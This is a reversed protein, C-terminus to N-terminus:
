SVCQAAAVAETGRGSIGSENPLCIPFYFFLNRGDIVRGKVGFLGVRSFLGTHPRRNHWEQKAFFESVVHHPWSSSQLRWWNVSPAATRYCLVSVDCGNVSYWVSYRLKRVIHHLIIINNIINNIIYM